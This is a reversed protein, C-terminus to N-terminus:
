VDRPSDSNFILPHRPTQVTPMIVTTVMRMPRTAFPRSTNIYVRGPLKRRQPGLLSKERPRGNSLRRIHEVNTVTAADHHSPDFLHACGPYEITCQTSYDRYHCHLNEHRKPLFCHPRLSYGASLQMSRHQYLIPQNSIPTRNPTSRCSSIYDPSLLGNCEVTILNQIHNKRPRM